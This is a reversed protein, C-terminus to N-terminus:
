AATGLMRNFLNQQQATPAAPQQAAITDAQQGMAASQQEQRSSIRQSLADGFPFNGFDLVDIATIAGDRFLQLLFENARERYASSASSEEIAYDYEVDSMTSPNYTVYAGSRGAINITKEDEYFQKINEVDKYACDRIFGDYTDLIDLLTVTANQTQQQYLVGSTASAGPKGQLAGHVGSADEMIQLEMHLLESIGINTSNNAVQKPAPTGNKSTYVIVGNFKAWQEAFKDPSAGGLAEEPVLLVGKASAQIIFDNLSILRNIYRQQDILNSVFSHIEGDIFPYCRFVYPHEGHEYPTEGEKLIKGTPTIYRYYWYDDVFFDAQILRVSKSVSEGNELADQIEDEPVGAMRAQQVRKANEAKIEGLQDLEIVEIKGKAYDHCRYRAKQEKTWVEIVRCMHPDSPVLFDINEMDSVGFGESIRGIFNEDRAHKYENRLTYFDEPCTAFERCLEAFHLDHIEGIISVDWTRFDEMHGDVFFRNPNIYDTWCDMKHRRWGYTKKHCVLGGNLFDELSRAYLDPLRNLQGNAQLVVSMTEGISQEQRDRAVCVPEKNQSRFVGLVSRVLRDILNNKLPTTGRKQMYTSEKMRVGNVTIYDDWQKGHQYRICRRRDTRFKDMNDWCGKARYLYPFGNKARKRAEAVSDIQERYAM